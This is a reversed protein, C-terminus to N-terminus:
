RVLDRGLCVSQSRLCGPTAALWTRRPLCCRGTPLTQLGPVHGLAHGFTRRVWRRVNPRVRLGRRYRCGRHRAMVIYKRGIFNHRQTGRASSVPRLTQRAHGDVLHGAQRVSRSLAVVAARTTRRQNRVRERQGQRHLSRCRARPRSRSVIVLM